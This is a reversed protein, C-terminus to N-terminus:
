ISWDEEPEPEPPKALRGWTLIHWWDAVLWPRFLMSHCLWILRRGHGASYGSYRHISPKMGMVAAMEPQTFATLLDSIMVKIQADTPRFNYAIPLLKPDVPFPFPCNPRPRSPRGGKDGPFRGMTLFLIVPSDIPFTDRSAPTLNVTLHYPLIVGMGLYLDSGESADQLLWLGL